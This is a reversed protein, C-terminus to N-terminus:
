EGCQKIPFGNADLPVPVPSPSWPKTPPMETGDRHVNRLAIKLQEDPDQFIKYDQQFITISVTDQLSGPYGLNRLRIQVVSPDDVASHDTSLTIVATSAYFGQPPNLPKSAALFPNNPIKSTGMNYLYQDNPDVKGDQPQVTGWEIKATGALFLAAEIILGPTQLKNVRVQAGITLRYPTGVPLRIGNDDLLWIMLVQGQSNCPSDNSLRQYFRCAFTDQTDDFNREAESTHTSRRTDGDSWFRKKCGATGDKYSPCPWKAPLVQSGKRFVLIMVRRNVSNRQDREGRLTPQDSDAFAQKFRAEDEASFLRTPNFRSCGQVDGKLNPGAGRALFDSSKDLKLDGGLLNMYRLFLQQRQGPDNAIDQVQASHASTSSGQSSAGFSSGSQQNLADLMIQISDAGWVDGGLHNSYLTSWFSPDRVLLAYIAIARRGSLTKNYDDGSTATSSALEFNGLYSPDAHGFVTIPAGSVRPDAKRLDSFAMLEAQVAPLVFSSDFRFRMDDVRFCAIPVLRLRATNFESSTSPAALLQASEALPYMGILGGDSSSHIANKNDDSM